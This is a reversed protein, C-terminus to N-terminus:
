GCLDDILTEEKECGTEDLLDACDLASLCAFYDDVAQGCEEGYESTYGNIEQQCYVDSAEDPGDCAEYAAGYAACTEGVEPVCATELAVYEQDCGLGENYERCTQTTQCKILSEFASLCDEGYLEGSDLAAMCYALGSRYTGEDSCEVYFNAFDECLSGGGTTQGTTESTTESTTQGTTEGATEDGTSDTTTTADTGSDTGTGGTDTASGTTTDTATTTASGTTSATDSDSTTSTDDGTCALPVAGLSLLFALHRCSPDM